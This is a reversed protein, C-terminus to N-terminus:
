TWNNEYKQTQKLNNLSSLVKIWNQQPTVLSNPYPNRYCNRRNKHGPFKKAINLLQFGTVTRVFPEVKTAAATKSRYYFILEGYIHAHVLRYKLNNSLIQRLFFSRMRYFYYFNFYVFTRDSHLFERPFEIFNFIFDSFLIMHLSPHLIM